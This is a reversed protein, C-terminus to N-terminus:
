RGAKTPMAPCCDVPAVLERTHSIADRMDHADLRARAAQERRRTNSRRIDRSSAHVRAGVIGSALDRDSAAQDRDSALQDRDARIQDGDSCAQDAASLAQDRDAFSRQSDVLSREGPVVIAHPM